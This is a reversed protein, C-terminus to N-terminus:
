CLHWTVSQLVLHSEIAHLLMIMQHSISYDKYCIVEPQESHRQKHENGGVWNVYM